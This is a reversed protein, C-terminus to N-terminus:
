GLDLAYFRTDRAIRPLQPTTPSLLFLTHLRPLSEHIYVIFRAREEKLRVARSMGDLHSRPGWKTYARACIHRVHMRIWMAFFVVFLLSYRCWLTSMTQFRRVYLSIRPGEHWFLHSSRTPCEAPGSERLDNWSAIPRYAVSVDPIPLMFADPYNRLPQHYRDIIGRRAYSVGPASDRITNKLPVMSFNANM